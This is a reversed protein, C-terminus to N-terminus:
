RIGAVSQVLRAFSGHDQGVERAEAPRLGPRHRRRRRNGAGIIRWGWRKSFRMMGKTGYFANGNDSEEQKYPSWTRQEYVLQKKKGDGLDYDYVVHYTDPWEQDSDRLM